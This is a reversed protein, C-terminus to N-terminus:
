SCQCFKVHVKCHASHQPPCLIWRGPVASSKSYLSKILTRLNKGLRNYGRWETWNSKFPQTSSTKGQSLCRPTPHSCCALPPQTPFAERVVRTEHGPCCLLQPQKQQLSAAPSRQLETTVATGSTKNSHTWRPAPVFVSFGGQHECRFIM